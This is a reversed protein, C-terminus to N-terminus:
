RPSLAIVFTNISYTGASMALQLNNTSKTYTRTAPTGLDTNSAIVTVTSSGYSALLLDTFFNSGDNGSVLVLSSRTQFSFITKATTVGTTTYGYTGMQCANGGYKAVIQNQYGIDDSGGTGIAASTDFSAAGTFTKGNLAVNGGLTHAPLTWTADAVWTGGVHAATNLVPTVLTPSGDFVFKGTGTAGTSTVGEVSVHGGFTYTSANTGSERGGVFPATIVHLSGNGVGSVLVNAMPQAFNPYVPRTATLAGATTADLFLEAGVAFASTDINSIIGLKMVQGFANNAISDLVIGVGPLTTLSDAKALAIKPVNGTSGSVYVVKGKAITSGTVNNAIFVNDRGLILNTAAENDQEFRTFGQTTASHFRVTGATPAVPNSSQAPFDMYGAGATGVIVAAPMSFTTSDTGVEHGGTYPAVTVLISGNEIGQTLTSGIPKLYNPYSPRTSTLGGAVTPSLYLRTGPVWANTNYNALVGTMMVQGFANNLIDDVIIGLTRATTASNAQALAVTPVNGAEGNCYVVAGKILTVGTSNKAIFISDQGIVQDTAMENDHRIRTIGHVDWGYMRAFGAAPSAPDVSLQTFDIYNPFVPGTDLVVKNTGTYGNTFTTVTFGATTSVVGSLAPFSTSPLVGTVGNSLNVQDWQPNNSTGTNALYRTTNTDKPLTTLTNVASAYLIDGQAVSTLGTGGGSVVLPPGLYAQLSLLYKQFTPPFIKIDQLILHPATPM